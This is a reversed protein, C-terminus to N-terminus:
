SGQQGEQGMTLTELAEEKNVIYVVGQIKSHSLLIM